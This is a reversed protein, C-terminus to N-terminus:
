GRVLPTTTIVKYSVEVIVLSDELNKPVVANFLRLAEDYDGTKLLCVRREPLNSNLQVQYEAM